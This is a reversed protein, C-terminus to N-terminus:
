ADLSFLKMVKQGYKAPEIDPFFQGNTIQNNTIQSKPPYTLRISQRLGFGGWDIFLLYGNVFLLYGNM